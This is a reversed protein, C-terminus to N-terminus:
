QGANDDGDNRRQLKQPSRSTLYIAFNIILHHPRQAGAHCGLQSPHSDRPM